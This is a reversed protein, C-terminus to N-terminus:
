DETILPPKRVRLISFFGKFATMRLGNAASLTFEAFFRPLQSILWSRLDKTAQPEEPHCIKLM